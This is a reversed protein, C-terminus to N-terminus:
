RADQYLFNNTRDFDARNILEISCPMEEVSESDTVLM